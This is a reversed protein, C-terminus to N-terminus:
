RGPRRAWSKMGPKSRIRAPRCSSSRSRGAPETVAFYPHDLVGAYATMWGHMDCKIRVMVEPSTFSRRDKQTKIRQSFNFEKNATPLAHVNHGTSDSNVFEVDQGVRVGLVHPKYMCGIQDLTVPETPVDFYYQGLGDKVYVFVNGLGGNEGVYTEATAGDKHAQECIPDGGLKIPTNAPLAGDVMVRGSSTQPRRLTWGSPAPRRLASRGEARSFLRRREAAAGPRDIGAVKPLRSMTKPNGQGAFDLKRRRGGQAKETNSGRDLPCGVVRGPEGDTRQRADHLPPSRRWGNRDHRQPRDATGERRDPRGQRRHVLTAYLSQVGMGHDIIVCNGYIGLEDAFVGERSQRRRDAHGHVVGPRLRSAGASRSGQRQLHLHSPRRLGVGGRQELLSPVRRRAVADRAQTQAAFSAIKEHTRRGCSATSPSSSRSTTVRRSSRPRGRSSRRCSAISCSTTSRSAARKFPKPFVRYDFDARAINGAEDRAFLRIPTKLDQDHLLAFFAVRVAPDEIKIGPVGADSAPFGPYEVDGVVVGSTIDEPTARYVVVESGGLNMYHHTSVVSVRPRELRVRLDRRATSEVTRIGYLVKRAATVVITATGSQLEPVAQRGIERSVVLSDAGNQKVEAGKQDALTFLPFQKGNQELVIRLDEVRAGPAQVEVELPTAVGIVKEPKNIQIPPGAMRGAAVYAGGLALLLISVLGLLFRM